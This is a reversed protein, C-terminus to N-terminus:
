RLVKKQSAALFSLLLYVLFLQWLVISILTTSLFTAIFERKLGYTIILLSGIKGALFLIILSIFPTFVVPILIPRRITEIVSKYPHITLGVLTKTFIYAVYILFTRKKM